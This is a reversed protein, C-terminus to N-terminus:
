GEMFELNTLGLTIVDGVSLRQKQIDTNNLLTGNTSGLDEIAWYRGNFTLKAHNRSVNPDRLVIGGSSRERGIICEPTNCTFTQGTQRDILMATHEPPVVGQGSADQARGAHATGIGAVPVAGARKPQALPVNKAVPRSSVGYANLSPTARHASREKPTNAARAGSLDDAGDFGAFAGEENLMDTEPEIQPAQDIRKRSTKPRPHSAPRSTGTSSEEGYIADEQFLAADAAVGAAEEEESYAARHSNQSGVSSAGRADGGPTSSLYGREEARLSELTPADINEAFVSFKGPRLSPDVMFRVLPMGVFEYNKRKAAAELFLKTEHALDAQVPAMQQNDGGNVLVTFLAPATNVGDIVYTENQLEKTAQKALKKFSIPSVDSATTNFLSSVREEFVNLFNM